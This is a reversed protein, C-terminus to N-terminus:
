RLIGGRGAGRQQITGIGRNPKSITGVVPPRGVPQPSLTGVPRVAQAQAAIAQPTPRGGVSSRVPQFNGTLPRDQPSSPVVGPAGPNAFGPGRPTMPAAPVPRGPTGGQTVGVPTSVPPTPINQTPIQSIIDNSVNTLNNTFGPGMISDFGGKGGMGPNLTEGPASTPFGGKGGMGPSGYNIVNPSPTPDVSGPYVATGSLSTDGGGGPMAMGPGNPNGVGGTGPILNGNDDFQGVNGIGGTGSIIPQGHLQGGQVATTALNGVSNLINSAFGM